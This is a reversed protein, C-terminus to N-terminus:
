GNANRNIQAALVRAQAALALHEEDTMQEYRSKPAEPAAPEEKKLLDWYDVLFDDVSLSDLPKGLADKYNPAILGNYLLMEIKANAIAERVSAVPEYYL